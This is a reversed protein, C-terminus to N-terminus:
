AFSLIILLGGLLRTQPILMCVAAIVETSWALQNILWFAWHSPPLRGYRSAWYGWEPKVLGLEMGFNRPYGATFKYVGASLFILAFDVQLTLLALPAVDPAYQATYELLLVAGALWYTV